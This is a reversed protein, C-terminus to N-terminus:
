TVLPFHKSLESEYSDSAEKVAPVFHSPAM